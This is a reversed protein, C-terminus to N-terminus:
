KPIVPLYLFSDYIGGAYIAHRGRNVDSPLKNRKAGQPVEKANGGLTVMEVKEDPMYTYGEKPVTIKASGFVSSMAGDVAPTKYASVTLRLTEGARFRMGMPWILIDVPVIQGPTLKEAREMTQIPREECSREPDLARLSVRICGTARRASTPIDPYATGFPTLKEVRVSLDMDDADLAAVWLRLKMYGCFTLDETLKIKYTLKRKRSDSNYIRCSEEKPADWQLKKGSLYLKKYVTGPVPFDTEIRNLENKGGPDLITLRVRPTQEWGNDIGKLYHDFFKRLDEVNEPTYYDQWENNDHVRLWKEQSSIRRWGEFTGFTHIANTYSAVIYAPVDIQELEAAKDRWYADMLPREYIAEICDEIGGESTSAYTNSLLNVFETTPVGGRTGVERYSDNLGEWPAIAKLYQPKEAAIFWQSIALWSNGSMGVAQNSWPQQAIWDIIDCGDLAYQHGFYLIVGESMNAGRLDPNVVAYGHNVWYAPDPAEFKHLGSTAGKPVGSRGPIDDLWQGGLEKGYPSCALLAPYTGDEVPRFVDTYIKTGDRLVIEVDREMLIDCPLPMAGKYRISGKKLILTEQKFGPYRVRDATVPHAPRVPVDLATGYKDYLTMRKQKM